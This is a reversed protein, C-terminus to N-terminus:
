LALNNKLTELAKTNIKSVNQHSCNWLKAIEAVTFGDLYRLKIIEKQKGTLNNYHNDFIVKFEIADLNDYFNDEFEQYYVFRNNKYNFHRLHSVIMNFAHTSLKAGKKPNYTRVAEIIAIKAIQYLDDFENCYSYKKALMKAMPDLNILAENESM